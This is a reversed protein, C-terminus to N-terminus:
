VRPTRLGKRGCEYGRVVQARAESKKGRAKAESGEQWAGKALLRAGGAGIRGCEM